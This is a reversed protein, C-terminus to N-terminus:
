HAVLLKRKLDILKGRGIRSYRFNSNGSRFLDIIVVLSILVEKIIIRACFPIVFPISRRIGNNETGITRYFRKPIGKCRRIVVFVIRVTYGFCPRQISTVTFVPRPCHNRLM